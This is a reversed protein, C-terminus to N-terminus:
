NSEAPEDSFTRQLAAGVRRLEDEIQVMAEQARDLRGDAALAEIEESLSMLKRAGFNGATGKLSHAGAAVTSADNSRAASRMSAVTGAADTLFM